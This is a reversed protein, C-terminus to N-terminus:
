LEDQTLVAQGVIKKLCKKMLGVMREFVGGWLPARELNYTWEVRNGSFYKQVESSNMVDKIIWGAAKFTKGNDSVVKKPLGRLAVFRRFSQLFAETTLDLVLDLHVARVICCTYLCVWMKATSGKM